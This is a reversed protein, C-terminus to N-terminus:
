DHNCVGVGDHVGTEEVGESASIVSDESINDEAAIARFVKGTSNVEPLGSDDGASRVLEVEDEGSGAFQQKLLKEKYFEPFGAISSRAVKGWAWKFLAAKIEDECEEKIDAQISRLLGGIDKPDDLLLGEDRTMQISKNWRAQSCYKKGLIQLFDGGSPNNKKWEGQHVEKFAESVYKGMLPKGDFQNFRDYNKVVFGEIDAGGLTSKRKLLELLTSPDDVLGRFLIPVTELGIDVGEAHVEDWDLYNEPSIMIDFLIIHDVPIRDYALTNHKPSRLYEGRYTWGETLKDKLTVLSEVANAFLKEPATTDLNHNKSKVELVGNYVGFSIQSGDVKETITVETGFLGKLVRHGIAYIKPYSSIL